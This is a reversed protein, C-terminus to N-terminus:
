GEVTLSGTMAPHISCFFEYVGPTEFTFQFSEGVNLSGSSFEGDRSTWTHTVSDDNTVTVTEGAQITIPAGFSFGSITITAGNSADAASTETSQETTTTAAQTTSPSEQDSTSGGCGAALVAVAILVRFVPTSDSM